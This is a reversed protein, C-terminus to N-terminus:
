YRLKVARELKIRSTEGCKTNYGRAEIVTKPATASKFVFVKACYNGGVDYQFKTPNSGGVGPTGDADAGSLEHAPTAIDQGSCTVGSTTAVSPNFKEKRFDWYLACEAAADAAYFAKQSERSISSLRIDKMVIFGISLTLSLLLASILSAYLLAFGKDRM